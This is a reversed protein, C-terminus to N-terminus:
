DVAVHELGVAARPRSGYGASVYSQRVRALLEHCAPGDRGTREMALYGCDRDAYKITDGHQVQVVCFVGVCFCVHVDDHVVATAEDLDLAGRLPMRKSAMLEIRHQVERRGADAAQKSQLRLGELRRAHLGRLRYCRCAERAPSGERVTQNQGSLAFCERRQSEPPFLCSTQPSHM